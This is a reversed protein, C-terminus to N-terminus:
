RNRYYFYLYILGLIWGIVAGIIIQVEESM